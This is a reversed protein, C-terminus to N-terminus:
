LEIFVDYVYPQKPEPINKFSEIELVPLISESEDDGKGLRGKV